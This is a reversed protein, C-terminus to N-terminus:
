IEHENRLRGLSFCVQQRGGMVVLRQWIGRFSLLDMSDVVVGSAM